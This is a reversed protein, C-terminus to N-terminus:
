AIRAAQQLTSLAALTSEAGQNLNAGDPTLGDCCGGTDFDYLVTNGDNDGVLWRAAMLVRDRWRDDGTLLWARACADAMAATEVPQQDFGPRPEGLEWGGAPVYSFHEDRRRMSVLWDLIRLGAEVLHHDALAEGAALLAEPLRANDYSLRREPWLWIPDEPVQLLGAWRKLAEVTPPHGPTMALVESAGLVAFANARPSASEFHLQREFLDFSPRHMWDEPGLRAVTGLGWIARGQPIMPDLRTPGRSM